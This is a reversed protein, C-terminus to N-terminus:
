RADILSRAVIALGPWDPSEQVCRAFLWLRLRERDLALLDAVRAILGHPNEHLRESCNLLHQLVDYTPDGVYPKPDVVLWPERQAALVNGAHLDTSLVVDRSASRPLSRFLGIGEGALGADLPCRGAARKVEFEDAWTDCMEVLSRFRHGPPPSVWLRPLLGAVVEDQQEEPMSALDSGPVARELLMVITDELQESKDLTVAGGGAWLRLADPEHEAEPHRWAVKLVLDAGHADRAPGVWATHGGPQFPPGVTLSWEAAFRRITAPVSSLWEARGESRAAAVLCSPLEVSPM